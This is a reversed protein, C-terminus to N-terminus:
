TPGPKPCSSSAPAPSTTPTAPCRTRYGCPSASPPPSRRSTAPTGTRRGKLVMERDTRGEQQDEQRLLPRRLDPHGGLILYPLGQEAAKELADHPNPARAALVAVGEDKYRYAAAQSIGFGAGLRRVDPRDRFWALIFKAQQWCTLARNGNRIGLEKRNKGLLNSVKIVLQVTVDIVVRYYIM